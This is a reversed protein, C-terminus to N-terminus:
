QPGTTGSDPCPEVACRGGICAQDKLCHVGCGGCNNPDSQVNTECNDSPDHNCDVWGHQCEVVCSGYLCMGLGHWGAFPNDSQGGRCDVGCGGCNEQDSLPDVCKTGCLTKGSPCLCSWAGGGSDEQGCVQGPDCAIGCGGCNQVTNTPTECGTEPDKDCDAYNDNCKAQGCQGSRCGYYGNRIPPAGAPGDPDCAHGCASCNKDDSRLDRCTSDSSCPTTDAPCGCQYEAAAYNLQVCPKGPDTCADGCTSCNEDTGLTVECGDEVDGNCDARGLQCTLVCHGNSCLSPGFQAGYNCSVGCAGCNQVDTMLDVDCPFQSGPCTTTNNTCKLSPCYSILASEDDATSADGSSLSPAAPADDSPREFEITRHSCAFVTAIAATGLAPGVLIFRKM